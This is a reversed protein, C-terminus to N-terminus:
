KDIIITIKSQDDTPLRSAAVRGCIRITKGKKLKSIETKYLGEKVLVYWQGYSHKVLITQFGEKPSSNMKRAFEVELSVYTDLYRVFGLHIKGATVQEVVVGEPQPDGLTVLPGSSCAAMLLALSLLLISVYKM